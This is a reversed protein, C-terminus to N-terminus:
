PRPKEKSPTKPFSQVPGRGSGVPTAAALSARERARRISEVYRDRVFDHVSMGHQEAREAVYEYEALPLRFKIEPGLTRPRGV